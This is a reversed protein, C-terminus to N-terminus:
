FEKITVLFEDQLIRGDDTTVTVTVKHKVGAAGGRVWVRVSNADHHVGDLSVGEPEVKAEADLLVDGDTLDDAFSITYSEREGPQKTYRGLIM